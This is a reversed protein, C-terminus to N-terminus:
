GTSSRDSIDTDERGSESAKRMKYITERFNVDPENGIAVNLREVIDAIDAVTEPTAPINSIPHKMDGYYIQILHSTAILAMTAAQRATLTIQVEEEESM